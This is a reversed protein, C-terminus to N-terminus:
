GLLHKLAVATSVIAQGDITHPGTFDHFEVSVGADVLMDRLRQASSFPLLPDVTGHSQYVQTNELRGMSETWQPQCIITGSFQILLDPPTIQGRLAADMTLMAGQSFGGIALPISQVPCDRQDAIEQKAENILESLASRALDLGPPTERHLEEFCQAQVAEMLRAMNLPWWARGSPLGIDALSHPAIPCIFRFNSASEGLMYVWEEVIGVLDSGPAGYGHCLVVLASPPNEDTDDIVYSDLSGYRIKRPQHM